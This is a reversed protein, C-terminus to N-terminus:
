LCLCVQLKKLTTDRESIEKRLEKVVHEYHGCENQVKEYYNQQQVVTTFFEDDNQSQLKIGFYAKLKVEDSAFDDM